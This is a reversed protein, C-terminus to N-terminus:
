EGEVRQRTLGVHLVVRREYDITNPIMPLVMVAHQELFLQVAL